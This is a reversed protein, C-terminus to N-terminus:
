SRVNGTARTQRQKRARIADLVQGREAETVRNGREANCRRCLVRCNLEEHALDPRESLPIIHDVTLDTAALCRECFSSLKRLRASLKRWAWDTATRGKRGPTPAPKPRCEPCRSGSAILRGCVLCPRQM